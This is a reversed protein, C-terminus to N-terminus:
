IYEGYEHGNIIGKQKLYEMWYEVDEQVAYPLPHDTKRDLMAQYDYPQLFNEDLVDIRWDTEDDKAVSISFSIDQHGGIGYKCFYWREPNYDTFGIDRMKEPELIHVQIAANNHNKNLMLSKGMYTYITDM